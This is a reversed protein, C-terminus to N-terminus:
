MKMVEKAAQGIGAAAPQGALSLQGAQCDLWGGAVGPISQFGASELM